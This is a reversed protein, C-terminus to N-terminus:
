EGGLDFTKSDGFCPYFCSVYERGGVVVSPIADYRGCSVQQQQQKVFWRPTLPEKSTARATLSRTFGQLPYDLGPKISIDVGSSKKKRLSFNKLNDNTYHIM